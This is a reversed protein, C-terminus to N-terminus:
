REVEHWGFRVLGRGIEPTAIHQWNSLVVEGRELRELLDTLLQMAAAQAAAEIAARETM